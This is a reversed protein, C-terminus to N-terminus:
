VMSFSATNQTTVSRHPQMVDCRLLYKRVTKFFEFCVLSKHRKSGALRQLRRNLQSWTHVLSPLSSSVVNEQHRFLLSIGLFQTSKDISSLMIKSIYYHQNTIEHTVSRKNEGADFTHCQVNFPKPM